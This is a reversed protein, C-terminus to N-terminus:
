LERIRELAASLYIDQYLPMQEFDRGLFDRIRDLRYKVTNRHLFLLEATRKVSADADFLYTQLTLLLDDSKEADLPSLLTRYYSVDTPASNQLKICNAAFRLTDYMVIKRMPFIKEIASSASRMEIYIHAANKTINKETFKYIKEKCIETLEEILLQGKTDTFDSSLFALLTNGYRDTVATRDYEAIMRRIESTDDKPSFFLMSRYNDLELNNIRAVEALADYKEELILPIVSERSNTDLNVNWISVYLQIIQATESLINRSISAFPNVFCLKLPTGGKNKFEYSLIKESFDDDSADAFLQEVNLASGAPWLSSGLIRNDPSCLVISSRNYESILGLVTDLSRHRDDMQSIRDITNDIYFDESRADLFIAESIDHIVDSYKLGMDDGSLLILPLNCQDAAEVVKRDVGHLVMDSYFLVLAVIGSRKAAKITEVQDLISNRIDYFATIALENPTFIDDSTLDFEFVTVSSVIGSLGNRGAIVRGMCLSPLSLCDKVTISM